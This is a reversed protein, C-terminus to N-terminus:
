RFLTVSNLPYGTTTHAPYKLIFTISIASFSLMRAPHEVFTIYLVAGAFLGSALIALSESLALPSPM